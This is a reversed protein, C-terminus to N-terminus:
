EDSDGLSNLSITTSSALLFSILISISIRNNGCASLVDLKTLNKGFLKCYVDFEIKSIKMGDKKVDFM